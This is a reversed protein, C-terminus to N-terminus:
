ESRVVCINKGIGIDQKKQDTSMKDAVAKHADTSEEVARKEDDRKKENAVAKQEDSRKEDTDPTIFIFVRKLATNNKPAPIPPCKLKNLENLVTNYRTIGTLELEMGPHLDKLWGVHPKQSYLPKKQSDNWTDLHFEENDSTELTDLGAHGLKKSGSFIAVNDTLQAIRYDPQGFQGFQKGTLIVHVAVEKQGEQKEQSFRTSATASGGGTVVVILSAAAITQYFAKFTAM